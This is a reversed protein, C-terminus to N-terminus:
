SETLKVLLMYPLEWLCYMTSLITVCHSLIKSVLPFISVSSVYIVELEGDMDVVFFAPECAWYCRGVSM